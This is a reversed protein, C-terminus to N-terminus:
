RYISCATTTIVIANLLKTINNPSLSAWLSNPGEEDAFEQVKWPSIKSIAADASHFSSSLIFLFTWLFTGQLPSM